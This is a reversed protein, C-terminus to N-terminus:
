DRVMNMLLLMMTMAPLSLLGELQEELTPEGTISNLSFFSVDTLTFLIMVLQVCSQNWLALLDRSQKYTFNNIDKIKKSIVLTTSSKIGNEYM